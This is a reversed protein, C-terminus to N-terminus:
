GRRQRPYRVREILLGADGAVGPTSERQRDDIWIAHGGVEDVIRALM